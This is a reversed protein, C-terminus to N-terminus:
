RDPGHGVGVGGLEKDSRLGIEALAGDPIRAIADEAPHVDGRISQVCEIEGRV